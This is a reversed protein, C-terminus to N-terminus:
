AIGLNFTPDFTSRVAACRTFGRVFARLHASSHKHKFAQNRPPKPDTGHNRPRMSLQGTRQDAKDIPPKEHTARKKDQM